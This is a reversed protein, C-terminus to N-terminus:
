KSQEQTDILKFGAEQLATELGAHIDAPVSEMIAMLEGTAADRVEYRFNSAAPCSFDASPTKLKRPKQSATSAIQGAAFQDDQPNQLKIESTM